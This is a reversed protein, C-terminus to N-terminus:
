GESSYQKWLLLKELVIVIGQNIPCENELLHPDILELRKKWIDIQPVEHDAISIHPMSSKIESLIKCISLDIKEHKGRRAAIAFARCVFPRYQYESCSGLKLNEDDVKLFLCHKGYSNKAKELIEEASGKEILHLAMPLLEYPSCSVDVKFCCQGCGEPCILGLKEQYSGFIHSVETLKAHIANSLEKYSM